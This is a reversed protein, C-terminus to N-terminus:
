SIEATDMGRIKSVDVRWSRGLRVVPVARGRAWRRVSAASYGLVKAAEDINMLRVPLRMKISKV